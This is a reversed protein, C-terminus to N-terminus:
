YLVHDYNAPLSKRMSLYNGESDFLVEFDEFGKERKGAILLDYKVAPLLLNQFANFLTEEITNFEAVNYQQYIKLTRYKSFKSNLHKQISNLSENPMDVEKILIEINELTGASDFEAKYALRDLKFKASYSVKSSDVERYYKVKRAEKVKNQLLAHAKNPFQNKKIRYEREYKYKGQAMTASACLLFLFLVKYKMM